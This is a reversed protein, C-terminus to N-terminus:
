PRRRTRQVVLGGGGGGGGGDDDEDEDDDDDDEDDDDDDDDEDDDVCNCFCDFSITELSVGEISLPQDSRLSELSEVFLRVANDSLSLISESLSHAIIRQVFYFTLAYSRARIIERTTNLRSYYDRKKKEKKRIKREVTM